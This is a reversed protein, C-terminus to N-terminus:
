PSINIEQYRVTKGGNRTTASVGMAVHRTNKKGLSGNYLSAFIKMKSYRVVGAKVNSTARM